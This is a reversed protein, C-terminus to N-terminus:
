CKADFIEANSSKFDAFNQTWFKGDAGVGIYKAKTSLINAKHGPSNMWADVVKVPDDFGGAVNEAAYTWTIGLKGLRTGLTGDPDDHTTIKNKNQYVSHKTAIDNLDKSFRLPPLNNDKRKKNTECVVKQIADPVSSSGTENLQAAPTETSGTNVPEASKTEENSKAPASVKPPTYPTPRVNSKFRRATLTPNYKSYTMRTKYETKKSKVPTRYNGHRESVSTSTIVASGDKPEEERDLVTQVLNGNMNSYKTSGLAKHEIVLPDIIDVNINQPLSNATSLLVALLLPLKIAVM